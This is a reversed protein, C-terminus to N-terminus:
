DTMPSPGKPGDAFLRVQRPADRLDQLALKGVPLTGLSVEHTGKTMSLLWGDDILGTAHEWADSSSVPAMVQRASLELTGRKVFVVTWPVM